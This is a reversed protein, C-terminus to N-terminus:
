FKMKLDLYYYRGTISHLKHMYGYREDAIPAMRDGVNKIGLTVKTGRLHGEKFSYALKTNIKFWNDVRWHVTEGDVSAKAGTDFVSGVYHGTLGASWNDKKWNLRTAYRWKPKSDQQILDGLGDVDFGLDILAQGQAGAEQDFKLLNFADFSFKFQGLDEIFFEYKLGYDVGAVRRTNLNTYPDIITQIRGTPAFGSDAYLEIDDEDAEDRIVNVHSGGTQRALLDLQAWNDLSFLGVLNNQEIEWYDTTLTLGQLFEPEYVIGVTISESEEPKLDKSGTSYREVKYSPCDELNDYEGAAVQVTCRPADNVANIRSVGADNVQVLNPARFGEAWSGRISLGPTVNWYAALRPKLVNKTDSFNEYRAALQVYFENVLPIDMSESVVPVVLETYASYVRRSGETDSTPSSGLADSQSVEGTVLDVFPSTGDFAEGRDDKFAEARAEVGVAIAVDGAPVSVISPHSLKLDALALSTESKKTADKLISQIVHDPNPTLDEATSGGSGNFINYADPTNLALSQQLLSTSIQNEITDDSHSESYLLASDYDWGSWNGRIGALFRYSKNIVIGNRRGADATRYKRVRLDLGEAPVDEINLGAVRNPNISGDALTTAGFPNWYNTKPIVFQATELVRASESLRNTRAFYGGLEAYIEQGSDLDHTLTTFLNFRNREPIAQRSPQWDYYMVRDGKSSSPNSGDICVGDGLSVLCGAIDESQVHFNGSSTLKTGDELYVNRADLTNFNGWSSHSSRSDFDSDGEFPTGEVYSLLDGTAAQPYEVAEVVSRNSYDSFVTLHTAGENFSFGGQFQLSKDQRSTGSEGGFRTSLTMGEFDSNIVNNVVGAVADAGYTAGAGDRLIDLRDIASAPISNMNPSVAPVGDINAFGPHLAMRRGNILMLTNGTGIGRLNVSSIDGRAYNMGGAQNSSNFDTVGSQGTSRLLEEGDIAGILGIDERNLSTVPLVGAVDVGKIHSGTIIVEELKGASEAYAAGYNFTVMIGAILKWKQFVQTPAIGTCKNQTVRIISM